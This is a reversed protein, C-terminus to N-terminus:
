LAEGIVSFVGRFYNDLGKLGYAIGGIAGDPRVIVITPKEPSVLYGAYAHSGKDVVVLDPQGAVHPDFTGQPFVLVTKVSGAPYKQVAQLLQETEEAPLNFLLVTHHTPRFVNFLSTAGDAEGTRVPVLDPAEPARDGARLESDNGSGYPNVDNPSEAKPTREDVVISSWRYNIGLMRLDGGRKWGEEANKQMANFLKTSKQLMAAIVPLREETYTALLSPSALGKEILSLKWALNFSDQTGSNLGQGGAPSHIHAADGAIFVRGESFKDVMCVNPRYLSLAEVQGFVLDKREVQKYLAEVLANRNVLLKDEDAAAKFMFSFWGPRETPMMALGATNIDGWQHWYDTGLGQTEVLGLVAKWQGETRTEGVFSLNLQKRVASRGGDSGVLWHTVVTETKEAEGNKTALLAEVRDHYQVFSRLETGYEVSGGLREIHSRLIAETNYQGLMKANMYPTSPTPDEIPAITTIKLTEVGGPKYQRRQFGSLAKALVDDLVGLFRFLELTRPQLGSGRQGPDRNADKDIIRVQIGNQLLTLALILGTPGAGAILIPVPSTNNM